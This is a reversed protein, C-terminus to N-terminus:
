DGNGSLIEQVEPIAFVADKLEDITTAAAIAAEKDSCNQVIAARAAVVDDPIAVNREAKRVVYWDTPALEKNATDKVQATWQEKLQDLDKATNVYLRTPVGDVLQIAPNAPTVWYFREDKREGDVVVQVNNAALFQPTPGYAPFSTTPFLTKVNAALKVIENNQILAYM